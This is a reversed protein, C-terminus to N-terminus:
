RRLARSLWEEMYADQEAVTGVKSAAAPSFIYRYRFRASVFSLLNRIVMLTASRYRTVLLVGGSMQASMRTPACDIRAGAVLFRFGEAEPVERLVRFAEFLDEGSGTWVRGHSNAVELHWEGTDEGIAVVSWSQMDGHPTLVSIEEKL